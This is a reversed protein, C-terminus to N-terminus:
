VAGVIIGKKWVRASIEEYTEGGFYQKGESEGWNLYCTLDM